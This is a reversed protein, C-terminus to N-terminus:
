LEKFIIVKLGNNHNEISINSNNKIIIEKAMKLGLGKQKDNLIDKLTNPEIGKSYNDQFIIKNM